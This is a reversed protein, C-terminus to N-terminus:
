DGFTASMAVVNDGVRMFRKVAFTRKEEDTPHKYVREIQAISTGCHQAISDFTAGSLSLNTIFM